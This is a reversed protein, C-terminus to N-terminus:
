GGVRFVCNSEAQQEAETADQRSAEQQPEKQDAQQAGFMSQVRLRSRLM